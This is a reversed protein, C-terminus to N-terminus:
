AASTPDAAGGAEIDLAFKDPLESQRIATAVRWIDYPIRRLEVNQTSSSKLRCAGEPLGEARADGDEEDM